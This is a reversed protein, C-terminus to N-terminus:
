CYEYITAIGVGEWCYSSRSHRNHYPWFIYQWNM